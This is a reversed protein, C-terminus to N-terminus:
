DGFQSQYRAWDEPAILLDLEIANETFSEQTITAHQHLWARAKGAEPSLAIQYRQYQSQIAQDIMVLLGEVGEGEIASLAVTPQEAHAAKERLQQYEEAELLDIKNWAEIVAPGDQETIGLTTLVHRVDQYQHETQPHAIDRVHILIDAELVEELTARFAAILQTPLDSIFGVTDSLIVEVGSPLRVQRMTPDLTAFLLDEAMVKEGTLRNFLSSKGANTYGVLAVVPYPVDRRTKRHLHRTRRVKELQAELKRIRDQILRRDLEIQREGPGGMFGAGGRQRELHTWSRVLRSKQYMQSALEVQLRGERTRARQGFIDLILQTRDIVKCSLARELNRQQLPTLAANVILVAIHQDDLQERLRAVIGSGFLTAPVTQRLRIIEGGCIDLPLAHSLATFEDHRAEPSWRIDSHQAGEPLVPTVLYVRDPPRHTAHEHQPM